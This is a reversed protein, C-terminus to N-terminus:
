WTWDGWYHGWRWLIMMEWWIRSTVSCHPEDTEASLSGTFYCWCNVVAGLRLELLSTWTWVNLKVKGTWQAPGAIDEMQQHSKVKRWEGCKVAFMTTFMLTIVRCLISLLKVSLDAHYNKVNRKEADRSNRWRGSAPQTFRRLEQMKTQWISLIICSVLSM